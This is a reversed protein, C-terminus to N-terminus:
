WCLTASESPSTIENLLEDYFLKCGTEEIAANKICHASKLYDAFCLINNNIQQCWCILLTGFDIQTETVNKAHM